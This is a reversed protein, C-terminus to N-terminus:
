GKLRRDLKEAGAGPARRGGHPRLSAPEPARGAGPASVPTPVQHLVGARGIVTPVSLCVDSIEGGYASLLSSVPLVSHEDNLIAEIIRATALAIAYNTYGNGAMVQHGAEAVETSIAEREATGLSPTRPRERPLLPAGGVTASSWLPFGTEGHEGAVYAHLSQVAVSLRRAVLERLRASDLVTGAGVVRDPPLGSEVLVAYTVVDVPNTVVVIVADPAVQLLPPIVDQCIAVGDAALGLRLRGPRPPVGVTLVV